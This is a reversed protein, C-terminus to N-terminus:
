EKKEPSGNLSQQDPVPFIRWVELWDDVKNVKKIRGYFVLQVHLNLNMNNEPNFFHVIFSKPSEAKVGGVCKASILSTEAAWINEDDVTEQWLRSITMEAVTHGQKLLETIDSSGLIKGASMVEFSGSYVEALPQQFM